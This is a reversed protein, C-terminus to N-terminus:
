AEIRRTSPFRALRREVDHQAAVTAPAFGDIPGQREPLATGPMLLLSAVVGGALVAWVGAPIRGMAAFGVGLGRRVRLSTVGRVRTPTRHGGTCSESDPSAGYM